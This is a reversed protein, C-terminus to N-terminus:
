VGYPSYRASAAYAGSKGYSAYSPYASASAGYPDYAAAGKYAGKSYAPAYAAYSAAAGKGYSEYGGYGKYSGKGGYSTYAAVADGKGKGKDKGKKGGGKDYVKVDVWKDHITLTEKLSIVTQTVTPDEFEIFGFGRSKGTTSDFKVECAKLTGFQSFYENMAADDVTSALAGVFLTQNGGPAPAAAVPAYSPKGKGGGGAGKGQHRKVDVWKGRVQHEGHMAIVKEVSAEDPLTIFGFGRCRGTQYDQKVTCETAGFQGFYAALEADQCDQPLAGVFLTIGEAMPV